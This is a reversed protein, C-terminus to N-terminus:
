SELLRRKLIPLLVEGAEKSLVFIYRQQDAILYNALGRKKEKYRVVDEHRIECYELANANLVSSAIALPIAADRYKGSHRRRIEKLDPRRLFVTRADTIYLSGPGDSDYFPAAKGDPSPFSQNSSWNTWGCLFIIRQDPLVALLKEGATLQIDGACISTLGQFDEKKVVRYIVNKGSM